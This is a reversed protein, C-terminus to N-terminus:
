FRPFPWFVRVRNQYSLFATGRTRLMHAELPPVGSVHVLLWYMLMPALISVWGWSYSGLGLGIPIYALWYLWEFFYNPHRSLSWLGTGCVKNRNGPETKFATLQADSLAEGVVALTAVIIGLADGWGLPAPNNATAVLAVVLAFAAAAQIQLFMFLQSHYRVGWQKRLQAYRLDDEGKLTRRTIHSALRLSWFAVLVAVILARATHGASGVPVLAAVGGCVGISATWFADAWGSKGTKLVVAWATAMALALMAGIVLLLVILAV